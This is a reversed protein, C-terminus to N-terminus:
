VRHKVAAVKYNGPILFPQKRTEIINGILFTKLMMSSDTEIRSDHWAARLPNVKPSTQALM